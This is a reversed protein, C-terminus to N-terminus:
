TCNTLVKMFYLLYTNESLVTILYLWYNCETFLTLLVCSMLMSWSRCIVIHFQCARLRLWLNMELSVVPNENFESKGVVWGAVLGAVGMFTEFFCFVAIYGFCFNNTHMLLLFCVIIRKELIDLINLILIHLRYPHPYMM